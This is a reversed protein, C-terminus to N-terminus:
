RQVFCEVNHFDKLSADKYLDKYFAGNRTISSRLSLLRIKIIYCVAECICHSYNMISCLM